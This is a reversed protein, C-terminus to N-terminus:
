TNLNKEIKGRSFLFFIYIACYIERCLLSIIWRLTKKNNLSSSDWNWKIGTPM